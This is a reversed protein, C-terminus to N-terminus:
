VILEKIKSIAYDFCHDNNDQRLEVTVGMEEATHNVIAMAVREIKMQKISLSTLTAEADGPRFCAQKGSLLNCM